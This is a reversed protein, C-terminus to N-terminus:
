LHWRVENEGPTVTVKSLQPIAEAEVEGQNAPQPQLNGTPKAFDSSSLSAPHISIVVWLAKPDHGILQSISTSSM